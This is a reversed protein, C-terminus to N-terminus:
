ALEVIEDVKTVYDMIGDNQISRRSEFSEYRSTKNHWIALGLNVSELLCPVSKNWANDPLIYQLLNNFGTLLHQVSKKQKNMM